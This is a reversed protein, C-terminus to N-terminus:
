DRNHQNHAYRLDRLVPTLDHQTANRLVIAGDQVDLQIEDSPWWKLERRLPAPIVVIYSNGQKLLRGVKM